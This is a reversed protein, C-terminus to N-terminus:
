LPIEIDEYDGWDNVTVDFGGSGSMGEDVSVKLGDIVIVGGHPQKEVQETVDIDFTKFKGNKLRVELNVAYSNDARTYNPNPYSPVGFSNVLARAGYETVTCDYLITAAEDSTTGNFLYVSRAMGALTGRALAVYELGEEFEFRIKYTFVLPQLTVYIDDPIERKEARYDSIYFGYLMDPPNVTVEEESDDSAYPNGMYSARTRTRTTARTTAVQDVDTMMIYETDNNYFLLDHTGESLYVIGGEAPINSTKSGGDKPYNVVRLGDPIEPILDEYPLYHEPWNERWNIDSATLEEWDCRYDAHVNIHYKHAHENHHYCLDKHECSSAVILLAVLLSARLYKNVDIM